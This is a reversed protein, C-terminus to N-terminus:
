AAVSSETTSDFPLGADEWDQKGGRYVTVNSYGLATLRGAAIHSNQCQINACYVVIEANKDPLLAPALANVQEHPINLANPLHKDAYYKEPLAEVLTPRAASVLKRTLQQRTITVNM